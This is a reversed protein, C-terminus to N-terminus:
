LFIPLNRGKKYMFCGTEYYHFVRREKNREERNKREKEMERKKNRGKREEKKPTVV